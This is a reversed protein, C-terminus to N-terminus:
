SINSYSSGIEKQEHLFASPSKSYMEHFCKTFYGPDSFGVKYAVEAISTANSSSLLAAAKRLRINRVFISVSLGSIGKVKKYLQSRSVHLQDALTDPNFDENSLNLEIAEILQGVFGKDLNNTTINKPEFSLDSYFKDKLKQRAEIVNRIKAKLIPLSFPKTVYDDAGSKLGELEYSEASRATLLILPIHSTRADNKIKSCFEFGSLVPMIVDSIILDPNIEVAKDFGEQGNKAQHITYEDQLNLQMYYRVDENDEVILVIPLGMLERESTLNQSDKVVQLDHTFRDTLEPRKIVIGEKIEEAAFRDAFVPFWVVFKSGKGLKDELSVSGYHRQVLQKVLALGIGTGNRGATTGEIQYFREFVRERLDIPIGIGNDEIEFKVLQCNTLNILQLDDALPKPITADSCTTIFLRVSVEGELETFKIANSILNYLVKEVVDMDFFVEAREVNSEFSFRIHQNQASYQFTDSINKAYEVINHKAIRLKMFGADIASIDLLQNILRLMREANRQILQYYSKRKSNEMTSDAMLTESPGIILTLPTRFEHSINTFFKLKLSDIEHTREAELQQLKLRNKFQEKNITSRRYLYLMALIALTYLFYAFPTRWFPPLIVITLERASNNWVGDGNAAKVKFTYTGPDLNTYTAENKSGVLNWENEFGDLQYAYKIKEPNRYSLGVFSISFVNQDSQFTIASTRDISKELMEDGVRVPKNFLSLGTLRLPVKSSDIKIGDPQFINLGNNGGFYMKGSKGKHAANVFFENSQLGDLVTYNVMTKHIPSYRSLGNNTSIWVNGHKDEQLGKIINNPLGDNDNVLTFQKAQQNFLNLGNETGVWINGRSDELLTKVENYSLNSNTRNYTIFHDSGKYLISLGNVSGVWVNGKRDVLVSYVWDNALANQWNDYDAFYHKAIQTKKDFKNIGHGHIALWLNGEDDEAIARVDDGSISTKVQDNHKYSVFSQTADNYYQLGGEYTGIWVIGDHDEFIAFVTGNGIGNKSDEVYDFRTISNDVNLRDIGTAYYGIWVNGKSDELVSSVGNSSVNKSTHEQRRYHSFLADSFTLNIGGQSSGIWISGEQDEFISKVTTSPPNYKENETGRFRYSGQLNPLIRGLGYDDGFWINGKTDKVISEINYIPATVDILSLKNTAIELRGVNGEHTGIWLSNTDFCLSRIEKSWFDNERTDAYVKLIASRPNFFALGKKEFAMWLNSSNDAKLVSIDESQIKLISYKLVFSRYTRIEYDSLSTLLAEEFSQENNFSNGILNTVAAVINKPVNKKLLSDPTSPKIVVGIEYFYRKFSDSQPDYRNLGMTTAIWLHRDTDEAIARIYNSSITSSQYALSKYNLFYDKEGVYKNLGNNKTGIWLTGNSDVFLTTITNDSVSNPNNPDNRYVLFTTGDFRNLGDSTGIWLFGDPTQTVCTVDSCSLGNEKTLNKFKLGKFQGQVKQFYFLCFALLVVKFTFERM